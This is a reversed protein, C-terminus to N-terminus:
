SKDPTFKDSKKESSVMGKYHLPASASSQTSLILKVNITSLHDKWLQHCKRSFSGPCDSCKLASCFRELIVGSLEPSVSEQSDNQVHLLSKELRTMVMTILQVTPRSQTLKLAFNTFSSTTDIKLCFKYLNGLLPIQM